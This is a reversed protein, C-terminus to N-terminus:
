RGGRGGRTERGAGSSRSPSSHSNRHQRHQSGVSTSRSPSSMGQSRTATTHTSSNKFSVRGSRGHSINSKAADNSSREVRSGRGSQASGREQSPSVPRDARSRADPRANGDRMGSPRGQGKDPLSFSYGNGRVTRGGGRDNRHVQGMHAGRFGKNWSPRRGAYFGNHYHTRAHGGVYHHYVRPHSYFFHGRAYHSYIPFHWCSNRWIVPRLFYDAALFLSYQWDYLIDRLDACRHRYCLGNIDRHSRLSLLYDLNIEYAYDYQDANLNLEYAMKDTLYLAENRAQEYSMSFAALCTMCAFILTLIYRKM